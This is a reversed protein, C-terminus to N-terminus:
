FEIDFFKFKESHQFFELNDVWPLRVAKWRIDPTYPASHKLHECLTRRKPIYFPYEKERVYLSTIELHQKFKAM